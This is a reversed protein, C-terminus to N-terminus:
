NGICCCCCCSNTGDDSGGACSGFEFGDSLDEQAHIELDSKLKVITFLCQLHFGLFFTGYHFPNM